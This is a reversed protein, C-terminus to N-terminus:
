LITVLYNRANPLMYIICETSTSGLHYIAGSNQPTDATINYASYVHIAGGENVTINATTGHSVSTVGGSGSNNGYMIISYVHVTYGSNNTLVCNVLRSIYGTGTVKVGAFSTFTKGAAVDASTATGFNSLPINFYAQSNSDMVTKYDLGNDGVVQLDNGNATVLFRNFTMFLMRTVAMTGTIKSGNAYATKDELIDAATATADSTDTGASLTGYVGFISVGSKINSAKLNADGAVKIPGYAIDEAEAITQTSTTPTVTRGKLLRNAPVTVSLTGNSFGATYGASQYVGTIGVTGSGRSPDSTSWNAGATVGLQGSISGATPMSGTVKGSSIYATKGSRIDSRAATADSVDTGTEPVLTGSVKLGTSSTFTKGSLVDSATATGFNSAPSTLNITAGSRVIGTSDDPVDASIHLGDSQMGTPTVGSVNIATREALTGEIRGDAGYAVKGASIDTATATADSTDPGTQIASIRTAYDEPHIKDTAEITGDKGRIANAIDKFIKRLTETPTPM